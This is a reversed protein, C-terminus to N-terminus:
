KAFFNDIGALSQGPCSFFLQATACGGYQQCVWAPAFPGSARGSKSPRKLTCQKDAFLSVFRTRAAGSFRAMTEESVQKSSNNACARNLLMTAYKLGYALLRKSSCRLLHAKRALRLGRLVAGSAMKKLDDSFTPPMGVAPLRM